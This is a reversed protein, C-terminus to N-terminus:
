KRKEVDPEIKGCDPKCVNRKNRKGKDRTSNM